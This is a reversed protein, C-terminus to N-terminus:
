HQKSWCCRQTTQWKLHGKFSGQEGCLIFILERKFRTVDDTIHFCDVFRPPPAGAFISALTEKRGVKYLGDLSPEEERKEKYWKEPVLFRLVWDILIYWASQSYSDCSFPKSPFHECARSPWRNRANWFLCGFDVISTKIIMFQLVSSSEWMIHASLSIWYL